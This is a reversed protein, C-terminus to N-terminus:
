KLNLLRLFEVLEENKIERTKGKKLTGLEINEIRFRELSAVPFGLSSCMRRIQRNRGETLVIDIAQDDVKRVLAPKTKRGRILQRNIKSPTIGVPKNKNTKTKNDSPARGIDVGEKLYRLLDNNVRRRFTVHYEKEHDNEPDLLRGTVRGDNTLIILGSSDKDLRGVSFVDAPVGPLDKISIEGPAAGVTVVGLPKNFAYYLLKRGSVSPLAQPEKIGGVTLKMSANPENKDERVEIKDGKKVATGLVAAQGNVFVLGASIIDDAERRSALGLLALYRNLRIPYTITVM